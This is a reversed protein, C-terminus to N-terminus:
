RNHALLISFRIHTRNQSALFRLTDRNSRTSRCCERRKQYLQVTDCGYYMHNPTVLGHPVVLFHASLANQQTMHVGSYMTKYPDGNTWCIKGTVMLSM